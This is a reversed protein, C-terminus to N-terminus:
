TSRTEMGAAVIGASEQLKLRVKKKRIDKEQKKKIDKETKLRNIKKESREKRLPTELENM